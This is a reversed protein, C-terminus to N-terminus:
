TLLEALLDQADDASVKVAVHKVISRNVVKLLGIKLLQIGVVNEVGFTDLLNSIQSGFLDSTGVEDLTFFFLRELLLVNFSAFCDKSQFSLLDFGFFLLLTFDSFYRSTLTCRFRSANTGFFFNENSFFVFLTSDDNSRFRFLAGFRNFCFADLFIAAKLDSLTLTDYRQSLDVLFFRNFDFLFVDLVHDAFSDDNLTGNHFFFLFDLVSALERFRITLLLNSNRCGFLQSLLLQHLLNLSGFSL